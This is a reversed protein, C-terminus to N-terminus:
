GIEMTTVKWSNRWAELRVAVGRTRGQDNVVVAAEAIPGRRDLRARKILVPKRSAAQGQHGMHQSQSAQPQTQRQAQAQRQPSAPSQAQKQAQAQAQAQHARLRMQDSVQRYVQPSLWRQLQALPRHGAIAELCARVVACCIGTPDPLDQPQNLANLPWSYGHEVPEAGAPIPPPPKAGVKIPDFRVYHQDPDGDELQVPAWRKPVFDPSNIGLPVSTVRIPHLTPASM